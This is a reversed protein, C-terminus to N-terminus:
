QHHIDLNPDYDISIYRVSRNGCVDPMARHFPSYPGLNGKSLYIILDGSNKDVGYLLPVGKEGMCARYWNRKATRTAGLKKVLGDITDYDGLQVLEDPGIFELNSKM